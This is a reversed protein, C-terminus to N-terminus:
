MGMSTGSIITYGGGSLPWTSLILHGPASIQPKFANFEWTNGFTSFNSTFGAATNVIPTFRRDTFKLRFGTPDATVADYLKPGDIHDMSLTFYPASSDEYDNDEPNEFEQDRWALITNFGFYPANFANTAISCEFSKRIMLLTRDFDWGQEEVYAQAKQLRASSCGVNDDYSLDAYVHYEGELPWLGAYRWEGGSSGKVKYTTPYRASNASAVAVADEAIAPSGTLVPGRAGANGAAVIVAVGKAKANSVVSGFPDLREFGNDSGLSLSIIDAGDRVADVIAQM